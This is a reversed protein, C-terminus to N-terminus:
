HPSPIRMMNSVADAAKGGDPLYVESHVYVIAAGSKEATTRIEVFDADKGIPLLYNIDLNVSVVGGFRPIMTLAISNDIMAALMGGQLGGLANRQWAKVPYRFRCGSEESALLEPSLVEMMQTFHGEYVEGSRIMERTRELFQDGTNEAEKMIIVREAAEPETERVCDQRFSRALHM